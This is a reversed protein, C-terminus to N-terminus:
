LQTKLSRVWYTARLVPDNKWLDSTWNHHEKYKESIAAIIQRYSIDNDRMNKIVYRLSGPNLLRDNPNGFIHWVEPDIKKKRFDDWSAHNPIDWFIDQVKLEPIEDQARKYINMEYQDEPERVGLSNSFERHRDSTPSLLYDTIISGLDTDPIEATTEKALEVASKYQNREDQRIKVREELPLGTVPLTVIPPGHYNYKDNMMFKQHLSFAIRFARRNLLYGHQTTDFIAIEDDDFMDSTRLLLGSNDRFLDIMYDNILGFATSALHDNLLTINQYRDQKILLKDAASWPVVRMNRGIKLLASYSPSNRRVGLTFNYGQGTMTEIYNIKNRKFIDKINRRLPELKEFTELPNHFIEGPFKKNGYELDLVLVLRDFDLNSRHLDSGEGTADMIDNYRRFRKEVGPRPDSGKVYVAGDLFELIRRMVPTQHYYRSFGM